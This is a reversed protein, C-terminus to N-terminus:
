SGTAIYLSDYEYNCDIHQPVFTYCDSLCVISSVLFSFFFFVRCPLGFSISVDSHVWEHRLNETCFLSIGAAVQSRGTTFIDMKLVLFPFRFYPLTMLILRSGHIITVKRKLLFALQSLWYIFCEKFPQWEKM